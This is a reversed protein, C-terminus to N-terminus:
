NVSSNTIDFCVVHEVTDPYYLEFLTILDDDIQSPLYKQETFLTVLSDTEATKFRSLKEKIQGKSTAIWKKCIDELVLLSQFKAFKLSLLNEYNIDFLFSSCRSFHYEFWCIKIWEEKTFLQRHEAILTDIISEDIDVTHFLPSSEHINTKAILRYLELSSSVCDEECLLETEVIKAINACPQSSETHQFCYNLVSHVPLVETGDLDIIGGPYKQLTRRLNFKKLKLDTKKLYLYFDELRITNEKETRSVKFLKSFKM